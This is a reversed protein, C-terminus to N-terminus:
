SMLLLSVGLMIWAMATQLKKRSMHQCRREGQKKRKRLLLLVALLGTVVVALIPVVIYVALM